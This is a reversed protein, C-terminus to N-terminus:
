RRGRHEPYLKYVLDSQWYEKTNIDMLTLKGEWGGGQDLLIVKETIIPLDSVQSTTTHGLYIETFNSGQFKKCKIRNSMVLNALSRDWMLDMKDVSEINKFMERQPIGGHIFLRNKDDIYYYPSKRFFDGRHKQMLEPVKLYADLTAQGGQLTWIDPQKGWELWEFAWQDHNGMVFIMNKFSLLLEICQPTDPWGDCVDGLVILKDKEPDFAALELVQVFSRYGGHIDAICLERM